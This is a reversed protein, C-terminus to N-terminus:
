AQMLTDGAQLKTQKTATLEFPLQNTVVVPTTVAYGARQIAEIDFDILLQGKEVVDGQKVHSSFHEGNLQVTDMGIHILLEAGDETLLGIAHNTPFLASIKGSVPAYLKGETPEIAVGSGLAGSAFAGDSIESLPTVDGKLPSAIVLNEEVKVDTKGPEVSTDEETQEGKNVGGFLYTLVFGLIFAVVISVIMGWFALNLGEQPNIYSPIGFIGLGGIIYGKTGFAGLIAGGVGAAICSIVFPRKFPLTIGYIAPETVGFVGSLFAPISLTKLKQKKTKLWVGLVAGIQAFSAAFMMALIPDSGNVTLNNIAVPVLGWHLGFIVFVQWLSGLFIGAIIPSLDFVAISAAGILQGAWTAIPGILLFTLPVVVLLTLFPVLFMKVVDPIVKKMFAEVKSSFYTALIIPIVSTSYTMLIVPIGLFTIHVPSEFLTGTFLTYLPDTATVDTLTPYVLAAGIAMGIFPTGRFKKSATYGLFIPFFYFLSDGTANLIQYTGSSEELLGLSLFLANFGKIMGTAALVGLIPTFISSIVDIFRNLISGKEEEQEVSDHNQFGGVEVVAHYVDPVHNGIVVQYQGGSEMVTVVDEMNKLTETNAKKTDKLKFRLRTICHVVSYVNEKGGVNAIIDRALQEYKM